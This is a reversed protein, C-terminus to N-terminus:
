APLGVSEKFVKVVTQRPTSAFDLLEELSGEFNMHEKAGEKYGEVFILAFDYFPTYATKIEKVLKEEIYLESKAILANLNLYKEAFSKSREVTGSENDSQYNMLFFKLELDVELMLAYLSEYLDIRKQHLTTNRVQEIAIDKALAAKFSELEKNSKANYEDRVLKLEHDLRKEIFVKALFAIVAVLAGNALIITIYDSM